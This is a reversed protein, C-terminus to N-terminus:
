ETRRYYDLPASSRAEIGTSGSLGILGLGSLDVECDLRVTITGGPAFDGTMAAPACSADSRTSSGAVARAADLASGPDREYSAARAADRAAAEIDGRVTVYRGGAVVLLVFMVFVPALLVLEVAMSGAEGRAVKPRPSPTRRRDTM